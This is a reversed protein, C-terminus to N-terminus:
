GIPILIKTTHSYNTGKSLTLIPLDSYLRMILGNKLSEVEKFVIASAWVQLLNSEPSTRGGNEPINLFKEQQLVLNNKVCVCM